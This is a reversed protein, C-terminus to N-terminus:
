QENQLEIFHDAVEIAAEHINYVHRESYGIDDAIDAFTKLEIYRGYLVDGHAGPVQRIVDFVEQRTRLAELEAEKLQLMKDVLQLAKRETSKSIGNGHPTGDGGLPSTISDILFEQKEYESKLQKAIRVAEGYQQLYELTTM